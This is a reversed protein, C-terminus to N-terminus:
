IEGVAIARLGLSCVLIMHINEFSALVWGGIELSEVGDPM